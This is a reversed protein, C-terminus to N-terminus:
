GHEHGRKIKQVVPKGPKFREIFLDVGARLNVDGCGYLDIACYAREPWTHIACHSESLTLTISIGQPQFKYTFENLIGCGAAQIADRVTKLCFDMDDLLSPNKIQYFDVVYHTAETDHIEEPKM